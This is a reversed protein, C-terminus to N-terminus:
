LSSRSIFVGLQYSFNLVVYYNNWLFIRFKDEEDKHRAQVRYQIRDAFCSIICYELFYVSFLNFILRFVKPFIRAGNAFNLPVNPEKEEDKTMLIGSMVLENKELVDETVSRSTGPTTTDAQVHDQSEQNIEDIM